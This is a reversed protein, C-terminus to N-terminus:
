ADQAQMSVPLKYRQFREPNSKCLEFAYSMVGHLLRRLLSVLDERQTETLILREDFTFWPASLPKGGGIDLLESKYHMEESDSHAIIKNRLHLIQDMLRKESASLSVGVKKASLQVGSRTAGFPRAFSIIAQSEYCRFRRLDVRSYSGAPDCEDALFTLASLAQQFDWISYVVRHFQEDTPVDPSTAVMVTESQMGGLASALPRAKARGM